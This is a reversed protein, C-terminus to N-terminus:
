TVRRTTIVDNWLAATNVFSEFWLHSLGFRNNNDAYFFCRFTLNKKDNSNERSTNCKCSQGYIHSKKNALIHWNIFGM